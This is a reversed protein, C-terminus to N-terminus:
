LIWITEIRFLYWNSVECKYRLIPNSIQIKRDRCQFKLLAFCGTFANRTSEIWNEYDFKKAELPNNKAAPEVICFRLNTFSFFSSIDFREISGDFDYNHTNDRVYNLITIDLKQVCKEEHSSTSCQNRGFIIENRFKVDIPNTLHPSNIKQDRFQFNALAFCESLANWTVKNRKEFDFKKRVIPQNKGLFTQM